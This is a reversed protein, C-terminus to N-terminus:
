NVHNTEKINPAANLFAHVAKTEDRTLTIIKNNTEISLNGGQSLSLRFPSKQSQPKPRRRKEQQKLASPDLGADLQKRAEDRLRCAEKLSVKPWVGLSLTKEKEKIRYKLRWYKSGNPKVHLLLAKGASLKYPRQKPKLREIDTETKIM